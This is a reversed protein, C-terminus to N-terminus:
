SPLQDMYGVGGLPILRQQQQQKTEKIEEITKKIKIESPEEEMSEERKVELINELSKLQGHKLESISINDNNEEELKKDRNVLNEGSDSPTKGKKFELLLEKIQRMELLRENILDMDTKLDTIVKGHKSALKDLASVRSEM